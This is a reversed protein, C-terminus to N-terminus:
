TSVILVDPDMEEAFDDQETSGQSQKVYMSRSMEGGSLEVIYQVIDLFGREVSITLATGGDKNTCQFLIITVLTVM